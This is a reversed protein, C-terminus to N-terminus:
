SIISVSTRSVLSSTRAFMGFQKNTALGSFANLVDESTSGFLSHVRGGIVQALTEVAAMQAMEGLDTRGKCNPMKNDIAETVAGVIEMLGPSDSVALGCDRLAGVFDASRAALPLQTLLWVTEIVGLDQAARGLGREAATITANAIQDTGAGGCILGVVQEWKRTKPLAGLRVHGM